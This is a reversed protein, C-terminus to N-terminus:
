SPKAWDLKDIAVIGEADFYNLFDRRPVAMGDQYSCPVCRYGGRDRTKITPWPMFASHLPPTNRGDSSFYPIALVMEPHVATLRGEYGYASKNSKSAEPYKGKVQVPRLITTDDTTKSIIFDFGIDRHPFYINWGADSLLGAIYLEAFYDRQNTPRM